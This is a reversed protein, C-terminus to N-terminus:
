CHHHTDCLLRISEPLYYYFTKNNGDEITIDAGAKLLDGVLMCLGKKAALILSTSGEKNQTNLPAGMKILKKACIIHKHDLAHQLATNGDDDQLDLRVDPREMLIVFIKEFAATSQKESLHLLTMLPTKNNGLREQMNIPANYRLLLEVLEVNQIRIAGHLPLHGPRTDNLVAGHDLLFKIQENNKRLIAFDLPSSLSNVVTKRSANSLQELNNKINELNGEALILLIENQSENSKERAQIPITARSANISVEASHSHLLADIPPQNSRFSQEHDSHPAVQPQVALENNQVPAQSKKFNKLLAIMDQQQLETALQLATITRRKGNIRMRVKVHPDSGLQLLFEAMFINHAIVTKCLPFGGIVFARLDSNKNIKDRLLAISLINNPNGTKWFSAVSLKLRTLEPNKSTSKKLQVSVPEAASSSAAHAERDLIPMAEESLQMAQTPIFLIGLCSVFLFHKM